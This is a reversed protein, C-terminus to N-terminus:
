NLWSLPQGEEQCMMATVISADYFAEEVEDRWALLKRLIAYQVKAETETKARKLGKEADGIMVRVIQLTHGYSVKEDDKDEPTHKCALLRKAEKRLAEWVEGVLQDVEAMSTFSPTDIYAEFKDDKMTNEM